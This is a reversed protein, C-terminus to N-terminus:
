TVPVCSVGASGNRPIIEGAEVNVARSGCVPVSPLDFVPIPQQATATAPGFGGSSQSFTDFDFMQEQYCIADVIHCRSVRICKNRSWVQRASTRGALVNSIKCVKLRRPAADTRTIMVIM